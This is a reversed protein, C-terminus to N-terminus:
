SSARESSVSAPVLPNCLNLRVLLAELDQLDSSTLDVLPPRVSGVRLGRLRAGAKVMAVAYGARRNRINALPFLVDHSLSRTTSTNSAILAEYFKTAIEPLFNLIASSYTTIGLAAFMPAYLEATPMGNLLLFREDDVRDQILQLREIQGLGDKLGIVNPRQALRAITDPEFIANDRQYVIVGLHTRDAIAIYHAELGRQDPTILYPPLVLVGDAGAREASQLFLSALGMGYGVGAIVPVRGGVVAACRKILEQHEEIGLSFFEGTGGAPFVAQAGHHLSLEVQSEFADYDISGDSKMPTLPFGLLGHLSDQLALPHLSM